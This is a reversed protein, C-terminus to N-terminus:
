LHDRLTGLILGKVVGGRGLIGHMDSSDTFHVPPRLSPLGSSVLVARQLTPDTLPAAPSHVAHGPPIHAFAAMLGCLEGGYPPHVTCQLFLTPYVHSKRKWSPSRWPPRLSPGWHAKKVWAGRMVCKLEGQDM